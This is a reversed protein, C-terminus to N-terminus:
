FFVAAGAACLLMPAVARALPSAKRMYDAVTKIGPNVRKVSDPFETTAAVNRFKPYFVSMYLSQLTPFPRLPYLYKLVYQMQLAINPAANVLNDAATPAGESISKFGPFGMGAATAPMFQILGRAGTFKNKAQPNWGSEFNILDILWERKVKLSDAVFDIARNEEATFIKV